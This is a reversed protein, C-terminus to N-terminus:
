SKECIVGVLLDVKTLQQQTQNLFISAKTDCSIKLYLKRNMVCMVNLYKLFLIKLNLINVHGTLRTSRYINM